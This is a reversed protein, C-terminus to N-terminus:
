EATSISENFPPLKLYEFYHRRVVYMLKTTPDWDSHWTNCANLQRMHPNHAHYYDCAQKKTAFIKNMYGVHECKGNWDPHSTLGDFEFRQVELIYTPEM